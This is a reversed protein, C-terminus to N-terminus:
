SLRKSTRVECECSEQPNGADQAACSREIARTISGAHCRSSGASRRHMLQEGGGGKLLSFELGPDPCNPFCCRRLHLHTHDRSRREQAIVKAPHFRTQGGSLRDRGRGYVPGSRTDCPSSEAPTQHQPKRIEPLLPCLPGIRCYAEAASQAVLWRAMGRYSRRFGLGCM